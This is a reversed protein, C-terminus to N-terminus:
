PSSARQEPVITREVPRIDDAVTLRAIESAYAIPVEREFVTTKRVTDATLAHVSVTRPVSVRQRKTAYIREALSFAVPTLTLIGVLSAIDAVNFIISDYAIFDVVGPGMVLSLTNGLAAGVMLGLALPALKHAMALPRAVMAAIVIVLSMSVINILRTNDGLWMGGAAGDNWTLYFHFGLVSPTASAAAGTALLVTALQKSVLDFLVVALAISAM